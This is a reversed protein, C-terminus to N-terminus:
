RTALLVDGPRLIFNEGDRTTFELTESLMIGIMQRRAPSPTQREM